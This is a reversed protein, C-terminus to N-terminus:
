VFLTAFGREQNLQEYKRWRKTERLLSYKQMRPYAIFSDSKTKKLDIHSAPNFGLIWLTFWWFTGFFSPLQHVTLATQNQSLEQKSYTGWTVVAWTFHRHLKFTNLVYLEM